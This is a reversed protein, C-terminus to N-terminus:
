NILKQQQANSLRLKEQGDRLEGHLDRNEGTMKRLNETLKNLNRQANEGEEVMVSLGQIEKNKNEVISNLREIEKAVMEMKYDYDNLRQSSETVRRKLSENDQSLITM